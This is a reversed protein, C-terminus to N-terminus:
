LSQSFCLTRDIASLADTYVQQMSLGPEAGRAAERQRWRNVLQITTGSVKNNTAQTTAGRRLSRRLSYDDIEAKPPFIKPDKKRAETLLRRFEGEYANLSVRKGEANAFLPGTKAGEREVRTHMLREVWKRVQIGSKTVEAIALMHWRLNQEGKYKGRLTIMLHPIHYGQSSDWFQLMGMISTLSIEEGRLSACFGICTFSAVEELRKRVEEDNTRIWEEEAIALLGLLQKSTLAENQKRKVGMRRKAGLLFGAFWRSRTVCSTEYMKKADGAYVSGDAGGMIAEYAHFFWTPTQRMTDWQLHDAYVGPRTSVDLTILAMAMGMKDEMEPNGMRPFIGDISLRGLANELDLSMRSFNSLVTGSEKSWMADLTAARIFVLTNLDQVDDWDVERKAVNRFHCLDCEFPLGMVHDGNRACMFRSDRSEETEFGVEEDDEEDM